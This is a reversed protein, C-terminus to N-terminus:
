ELVYSIDDVIEVVVACETERQSLEESSNSLNDAFVDAIFIRVIDASLGHELEDVLVSSVSDRHFNVLRTSDRLSLTAKRLQNTTQTSFVPM